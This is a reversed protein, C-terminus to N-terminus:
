RQRGDFSAYGAPIEHVFPSAGFNVRWVDKRVAGASSSAGVSVFPVYTEGAAISWGRDRGPEGNIWRGDVRYYFQGQDFDM